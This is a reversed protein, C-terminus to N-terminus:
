VATFVSRNEGLPGHGTAAGPQVAPRGPSRAHGRRQRWSPPPFPSPSSPAESNKAMTGFGSAISDSLVLSDLSDGGEGIVPTWPHGRVTPPGLFDLPVRPTWHASKATEGLSNQTPNNEFHESLQPSFCVKESNILGRFEIETGNWMAERPVLNVCKQFRKMRVAM